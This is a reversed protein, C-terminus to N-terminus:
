LIVTTHISCIAFRMSVLRSSLLRAFGDYPLLWLLHNCVFVVRQKSPSSAYLTLQYLCQIIGVVDSSAVSKAMYNRPCNASLLGSVALMNSWDGCKIAYSSHGEHAQDVQVCNTCVSTTPLEYSQNNSPLRIRM